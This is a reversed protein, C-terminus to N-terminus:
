WLDGGFAQDYVAAIASRDVPHNQGGQAAIKVTGLIAALRGTKEWDWQAAIGYLLGARYADGCGTPDVLAAPAVAPIRLVRGGTRIQSGAAGQTVVM